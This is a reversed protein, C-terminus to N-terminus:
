LVRVKSIFDKLLIVSGEYFSLLKKAGAGNQGANVNVPAGEM